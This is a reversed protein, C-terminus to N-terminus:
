KKLNDKKSAGHKCVEKGLIAVEHLAYLEVLSYGLLVLPSLLWQFANRLLGIREEVQLLCANFHPHFTKKLRSHCCFVGVKPRILRVTFRDLVFIVLFVLYQMGLLGLLIWNTLDDKILFAGSLGAVVGYISSCCLIM